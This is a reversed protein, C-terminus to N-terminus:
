RLHANRWRHNFAPRIGAPFWVVAPACALAAFGRLLGAATVTTTETNASSPPALPEAGGPEMEDALSALIVAAVLLSPSPAEWESHVPLPLPLPVPLPM